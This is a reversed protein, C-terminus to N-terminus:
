FLDQSCFLLDFIFVEFHKRVISYLADSCLTLSQRVAGRCVTMSSEQEAPTLQVRVRQLMARRLHQVEVPQFRLPLGQAPLIPHLRPIHHLLVHVRPLRPPSGRRRADVHDRRRRVPLRPVGSIYTDKNM